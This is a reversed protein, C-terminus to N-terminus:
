KFELPFLWFPADGYLTKIGRLKYMLDKVKTPLGFFPGLDTTEASVTEMAQKAVSMEESVVAEKLVVTRSVSSPSAANCLMTRKLQDTVSRRAKTQRKTKDEMNREIGAESTRDTNRFPTSTKDGDQLRSRKANEQVEEQFQRQSPPLDEFPEDGLSDLISDTLVDECSRKQVDDKSPRLTTFDTQEVANSHASPQLDRQRENQEADDLKALLSSDELISDYDGFLDESDSCYQWCCVPGNIYM